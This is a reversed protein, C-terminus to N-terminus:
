IKESLKKNDSYVTLATRGAKSARGDAEGKGTYEQVLLAAERQRRWHAKLAQEIGLVILVVAIVCSIGVLPVVWGPSGGGGGGGTPTSQPAPAPTIALAHEQDQQVSTPAVTQVQQGLASSLSAADTTFFTTASALSAASATTNITDTSGAAATADTTPYVLNVTYRRV